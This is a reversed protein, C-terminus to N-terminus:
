EETGVTVAYVSVGGAAYVEELYGAGAPNLGGMERERPGYYVWTVGSERLLGMREAEPTQAGFFRRAQGHKEELRYTSFQHGMYVRCRARAPIANGTGYSSLVVDQETAREALWDIAEREEEALYFPPGAQTLAVVPGALLAFMTSPVTVMLALHRVRERQRGQVRATVAELGLAALMCLAAHEGLLLRGQFSVPLQALALQATGWSLLLGVGDARWRGSRVAWVAGVVALGLVLGYGALLGAGGPTGIRSATVHTAHWAPDLYFVAGYYAALPLTMGVAPAGSWLVARARGQGSVLALAVTAGLVGYVVVLAFPYALGMALCAVGGGLSWGWFARGKVPQEMARLVCLLTLLQAALGWSYHPVVYYSQFTTMEVMALDPALGRGAGGPLAVALWGLGGSFAVLLFAARWARARGTDRLVLHALEGAVLLLLVAGVVRLLHYALIPALGLWAAAKGTVVYLPYMLVPQTEEATFPNRYLWKGEAGQRMAALFQATDDANLLSGLYVHGPPALLAAAAYPVITVLVAAAVWCYLWRREGAAGM